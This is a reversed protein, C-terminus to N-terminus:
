KGYKCIVVQDAPQHYHVLGFERVQLHYGEKGGFWFVSYYVVGDSGVYRSKIRGYLGTPKHMCTRNYLFLKFKLKSLFKKM